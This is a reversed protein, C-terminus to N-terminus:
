RDDFRVLDINPKAARYEAKTKQRKKSSSDDSKKDKSNADASKRKKGSEKAKETKDKQYTKKPGDPNKKDGNTTSNSSKKKISQKSVATSM